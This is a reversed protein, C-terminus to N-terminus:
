QIRLLAENAVESAERSLWDSTYVNSNDRAMSELSLRVQVIYRLENRKILIEVAQLRLHLNISSDEIIDVLVGLRAPESFVGAAVQSAGSLFYIGQAAIGDKHTSHSEHLAISREIFRSDHQTGELL